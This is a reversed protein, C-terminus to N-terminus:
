FPLDDAKPEKPKEPEKKEYVPLEIINAKMVYREGQSNRGYEIMANPKLDGDRDDYDDIIKVPCTVFLLNEGDGVRIILNLWKGNKSIRSGYIRGLENKKQEM